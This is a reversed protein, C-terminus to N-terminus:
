VYQLSGAHSKVRQKERALDTFCRCINWEIKHFKKSAVNKFADYNRFKM